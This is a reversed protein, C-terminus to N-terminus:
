PSVEIIGIPEARETSPCVFARPTGTEGERVPVVLWVAAPDHAMALDHRSLEAAGNPHSHYHGVIRLDSGRLRRLLDFQVQPDVEFRSEPRVAVNAVPVLESVTITREGTGVLLGCCENPFAEVAVRRLMTLQAPTLAIQAVEDMPRM